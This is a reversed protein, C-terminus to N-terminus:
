IHDLFDRAEFLEVKARVVVLWTAVAVNRAFAFFWGAVFGAVGAWWAGVFAGPWSVRYGYFYQSLLEINTAESPAFILHFVTLLFLVAAATVGAALGLACKHLPAFAQKLLTEVQDPSASDPPSGTTM